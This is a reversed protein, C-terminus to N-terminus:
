AARDLAALTEPWLRRAEELTAAPDAPGGANLRTVARDLAGHLALAGLAAAAGALQHARASLQAGDRGTVAQRDRLLADGEDRFRALLARMRDPSLIARLSDIVGADLVAAAADGPAKGPATDGGHLGRRLDARRVPKTIVADAGAAHCAADGARIAHATVVVIRADRCPGRAARIARTAQLGDMGPMSLDMLIVDFRRALAADIGARGDAAEHARHGEAELQRRLVFRNIHNDEVLLVDLPRRATGHDPAQAPPAALARGAQAPASAPLPLRLRFLSGEGPISEAEICANMARALRRVIGLGLGTGEVHEFGPAEVRVFDDFVRDLDAAPIGVGTDSLEFVAERGSGTGAIAADLTVAGDRTFKIANGLLNALIQRLRQGDAHVTGLPDPRRTLRLRNGAARAAPTMDRMLGDLLADLDIDDPALDVHGAEIRAIDLVDDVHGMLLRASSELIDAYGAQAPDLSTQRLLEVGGLLGNLPTRMEHSMVAMFRAKARDGAVARDRAERLADEAAIRQSIDRLFCAHIVEGAGDDRPPTGVSVEVPTQHGDAHRARAQRLPADTAGRGPLLPADAADDPRVLDDLPRGAAADRSLGFMRAAAANVESVRDGADTVVIADPSTAIITALRAGIRRNARARALNARSQHWFLVALAALMALLMVVVLALNALLGRMEGRMAQVRRAAEANGNVSARRLVPRLQALRTAMAPLAARLRADPADVLATMAEVTGAVEAFRPTQAPVLEAYVPSQMMTRVRSLFIDFQRRLPDLTGADGDRAAEVRRALDLFEVEIQAITWQTNDGQPTGLADLRDGVRLLLQGAAALLAAVALALLLSKWRPVVARAIRKWRPTM